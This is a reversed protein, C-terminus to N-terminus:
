SCLEFLMGLRENFTDVFPGARFQQIVEFVVQTWVRSMKPGSYFLYGTKATSHLMIKKEHARVTSM